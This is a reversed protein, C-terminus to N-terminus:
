HPSPSPAFLADIMPHTRFLHTYPTARPVVSITLNHIARLLGLSEVMTDRM